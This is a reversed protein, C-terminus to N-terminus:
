EFDAMEHLDDLHADEEDDQVPFNTNGTDSEAKARAVDSGEDDHSVQDAKRKTTKNFGYKPKALKQVQGMRVRWNLGGWSDMTYGSTLALIARVSVYQKADQMSTTYITENKEIPTDDVVNGDADVYYMESPNPNPKTGDKGDDQLKPDMKVPMYGGKMEGKKNMGSAFVKHTKKRVQEDTLGAGPWVMDKYQCLYEYLKETMQAAKAQYSAPLHDTALSMNLPSTPTLQKKLGPGIPFVVRMFPMQVVLDTMAGNEEKYKPIFMFGGEKNPQPPPLVVREVDIDDFNMPVVVDDATSTETAETTPAETTVVASTTEAM